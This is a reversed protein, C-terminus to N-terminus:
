PRKRHLVELLHGAELTNLIDEATLWARRATKVGYPMNDFHGSRHVDACIVLGAGAQRAMRAHRSNLDLRQPHANIELATGTRVATEIVNEIDLDYADREGLM